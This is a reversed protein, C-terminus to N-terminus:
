DVALQGNTAHALVYGCCGSASSACSTCDDFSACPGMWEGDGNCSQSSEFPRCHPEEGRECWSALLLVFFSVYLGHAKAPSHCHWLSQVYGCAPNGVCGCKSNLSSALVPQLVCCCVWVVECAWWVVLYRACMDIDPCMASDDTAFGTCTSQQDQCQSDTGECYRGRGCSLHLAFVRTM